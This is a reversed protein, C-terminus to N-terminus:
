EVGFDGDPTHVVAHAHNAPNGFSDPQSNVFEILLSPGRVRYAHGVGPETAGLWAFRLERLGGAQELAALKEAREAEPLPALHWLVIQELNERQPPTMKVGRLGDQESMAPPTWAGKGASRIERPLAPDVHAVKRQADTLSDLLKFGADEADSLIRDGAEVGAVAGKPLTDPVTAPNAGYFLPTSAIAENGKMLFNLSLHHGEVSVAWPEGADNPRGFLTFYYKLPDRKVPDKELLAVVSELTMVQEAREYGTASILAALLTRAATRQEDSMEKLPLGKRTPKPIFHWDLRSPDAPPLVATKLQDPDLTQLFADAAVSPAAAREDQAGVGGAWVAFCATAASLIVALPRLTLM